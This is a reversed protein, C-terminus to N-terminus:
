RELRAGLERGARQAFAPAMATDGCSILRLSAVREPDFAPDDMLDIFFKPPGATSTVQEDEIAQLAAEPDWRKMLVAKASLAAPALVGHLLYSVNGFSRAHARM